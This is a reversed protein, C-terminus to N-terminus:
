SKRGTRRITTTNTSSHCEGQNGTGDFKLHIGDFVQSITRRSGANGLTRFICVFYHFGKACHADQTIDELDTNLDVVHRGILQDSEYISVCSFISFVTFTM